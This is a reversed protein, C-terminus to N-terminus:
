LLSVMFVCVLSFFLIYGLMNEGPNGSRSWCSVYGRELRNSNFMNRCYLFLDLLFVSISLFPFLGNVAISDGLHADHLIDQANSIELQYSHHQTAPYIQKIVGIQEVLGTFM